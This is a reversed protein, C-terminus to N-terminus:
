GWPNPHLMATFHSLPAIFLSICSSFESVTLPLLVLCRGNDTSRQAPETKSLDGGSFVLFTLYIFLSMFIDQRKGNDGKNESM